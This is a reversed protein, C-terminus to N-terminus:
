TQGYGQQQPNGLATDIEQVTQFVSPCQPDREILCLSLSYVKQTCLTMDKIGNVLYSKVQQSEEQKTLETNVQSINQICSVAQRWTQSILKLSQNVKQQIQDRLIELNFFVVICERLAKLDRNDFAKDFVEQAQKTLQTRINQIRILIQKIQPLEKVSKVLDQIDHNNASYSTLFDFAQKQAQSLSVYDLIKYSEHDYFYTIQQYNLYCQKMFRVIHQSKQINVLRNIHM